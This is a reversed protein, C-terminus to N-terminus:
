SKNIFNRNLVFEEGLLQIKKDELLQNYQEETLQPIKGKKYKRLNLTITNDFNDKVEIIKIIEDSNLNDIIEKSFDKYTTQKEESYDANQVGLNTEEKKTSITNENSSNSNIDESLSNIKGQLESVTGDLSDVKVQLEDARKTETIKDNYFKYIFYGMAIIVIIAIILFFASVSIGKSKKEEM